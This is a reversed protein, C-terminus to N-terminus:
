MHISEVLEWMEDATIYGSFDIRMGDAYYLTFTVAGGAPPDPVLERRFDEALYEYLGDRREIDERTTVEGLTMNLYLIHTGDTWKYILNDWQGPLASRRAAFAEYGAPLVTPLYSSFPEAVCAEQWPIEWRSDTLANETERLKDYREVLAEETVASSGADAGHGGASAADSTMAAQGQVDQTQQKASEMSAAAGAAAAPSAGAQNGARAELGNEVAGEASGAEGNGDYAGGCTEDDMCQAQVMQNWEAAAGGLGANGAGAHGTALRYGGWAAAGAVALCICAAMARGYRQYTRYVAGMKRGARRSCRELLEEDVDSLAEFIKVAQESM